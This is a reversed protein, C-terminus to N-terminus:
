RRINQQALARMLNKRHSKLRAAAQELTPSSALAEEVM